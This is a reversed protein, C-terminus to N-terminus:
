DNFILSEHVKYIYYNSNEIRIINDKETFKLTDKPSMLALKKKYEEKEEKTKQFVVNFYESQDFPYNLASAINKSTHYSSCSTEVFEINSYITSILSGLNKKKEELTDFYIKILGNMDNPFSYLFYNEIKYRKLLHNKIDYAKRFYSYNDRILQELYSYVEETLEENEEYYAQILSPFYSNKFNVAISILNNDEDVGEFIMKEDFYIQHQWYRSICNNQIASHKALSEINMLPKITFDHEELKFNELESFDLSSFYKCQTLSNTLKFYQPILKNLPLLGTICIKDEFTFKDGFYPQTYSFLCKENNLYLSPYNLFSKWTKMLNFHNKRLHNILNRVTILREFETNPLYECSLAPANDTNISCNFPDLHTIMLNLNNHILQRLQFNEYRTTTDIKLLGLTHAYQNFQVTPVKKYLDSKLDFDKINFSGTFYIYKKEKFFNSEKIENILNKNEINFQTSLSDWSSQYRKYYQGTLIDELNENTLTHINTNCFINDNVQKVFYKTSYINFFFDLSYKGYAILPLYYNIGRKINLTELRQQLNNNLINFIDSPCPFLEKTRNLYMDSKFIPIKFYNFFGSHTLPSENTTYHNRIKEKNIEPYIDLLSLDPNESLMNHFYSINKFILENKKDM